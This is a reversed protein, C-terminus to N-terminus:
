KVAVFKANFAHFKNIAHLLDPVQVDKMENVLGNIVDNYDQQSSLEREAGEMVGMLRTVYNSVAKVSALDEVNATESLHKVDQYATTGSKRDIAISKSMNSIASDDYGLSIARNYLGEIDKRYFTNALDDVQNIINAMAHAEDNSLEGNLSFSLNSAQTTFV